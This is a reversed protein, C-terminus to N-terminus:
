TQGTYLTEGEYTYDIQVGLTTSAQNAPVTLEVAGSFEFFWSPQNGIYWSYQMVPPCQGTDDTVEAFMNYDM